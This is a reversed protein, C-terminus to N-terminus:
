SCPRTSSSWKWNQGTARTHSDTDAYEVPWRSPERAEALLGVNPQDTPHRNGPTARPPLLLLQIPHFAKFLCRSGGLYSGREQGPGQFAVVLVRKREGVLSWASKTEVEEENLSM